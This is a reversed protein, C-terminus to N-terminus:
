KKRKSHTETKLHCKKCLTRGNKLSFRLKPFFAFQKIHDAHLYVNKGKRSRIGCFRCTWNDREFVAERWLKYKISNRIIHNEPTIGGKWAWHKNGSIKLYPKSKNWPTLGKKFETEPSLHRGKEVGGGIYGHGKQFGPEEGRGLRKLMNDRAVQQHYKTRLYVGIRM